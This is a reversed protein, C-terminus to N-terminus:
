HFGIEVSECLGIFTTMHVIKSHDVPFRSVIQLMAPIDQPSCRTRQRLLSKLATFAEGNLAVFATICRLSVEDAPYADIVRELASAEPRSCRGTSSLVARLARRAAKSLILLTPWGTSRAPECRWLFIHSM